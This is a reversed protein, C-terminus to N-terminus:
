YNGHSNAKVKYERDLFDATLTIEENPEAHGWINVTANRQLVMHDAFIAPLHVNAFAYM